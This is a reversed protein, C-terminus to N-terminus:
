DVPEWDSILRVVVRYENNNGFIKDDQMELRIQEEAELITDYYDNMDSHYLFYWHKGKKKERFEIGYQETM